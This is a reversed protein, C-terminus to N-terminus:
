QIKPLGLLTAASIAATETRLRNKGLSVVQYGHDKAMEVEKPHFGGEPGILIQSSADAKVRLGLHDEPNQPVYAIFKQVTEPHTKLFDELKVPAHIQTEWAQKSQKLAARAIRKLRDINVKDRESHKSLIPHIETIGLEILKEVMFEVRDRSKPFGVGMIKVTPAPIEETSLVKLLSGKKTAHMIEARAIKGQGNSILVEGSLQRMVQTLHRSEDADM